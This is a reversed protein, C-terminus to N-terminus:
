PTVKGPNSGRGVGKIETTIDGLVAHLGLGTVSDAGVAAVNKLLTVVRGADEKTPTLAVEFSAIAQALSTGTWAPLQETRWRVTRTSPLFDIAGGLSVSTRGTWEVNLPLTATVELANVASTTVSPSLIMRYKTTAGVKPPIPGTGIQDGDQTYYAAVGDLALHGSIPLHTVPTDIRVPTLEDPLRYSAKASVYLEPFADIGLQERTINEPITITSTLEGEAGPAVSVLAPDSKSDWIFPGSSAEDVYPAGPELKLVLDRLTRDGTNRYRVVVKVKEGALLAVREAPEVIELAFSLDSARPDANKRTMEVLTEEGAITSFGRATFTPTAGKGSPLARFYGYLTIIGHGQAELDGLRWEGIASSAPTSSTVTFDAPVDIRVVANRLVSQGDNIYAFSVAHTQGRTIGTQADIDFTFASGKIQWDRRLSVRTPETRGEEWYSLEAWMVKQTGSAGYTTARVVTEETAGAELDSQKYMLMDHRTEPAELDGDSEDLVCTTGANELTPLPGAVTTDPPLHVTLQVCGVRVLSDNTYSFRYEEVEGSTIDTPADLDLRVFPTSPGTPLVQESFVGFTILGAIISLLFIDLVVLKGAHKPFRKKYKEEWHLTFPTYCVKLAPDCVARIPRMIGGLNALFVSDKSVDRVASEEARVIQLEKGTVPSVIAQKKPKRNPQTTM